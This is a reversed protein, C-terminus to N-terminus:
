DTSDRGRDKKWEDLQRRVKEAAPHEIQEFIKLGAEAHEIAKEWQGVDWLALSMNWRTEAELRQDGLAGAARLAMKYKEVAERPRGLRAYDLRINALSQAQGRADGIAEYVTLAEEHRALAAKADGSDSLANGIANLVNAEGRRHGAERFIGGALSLKEIAERPRGFKLDILSLNGLATAEALWLQDARGIALAANCLVRARWLKGLGILALGMNSAHGAQALRDRRRRAAAM